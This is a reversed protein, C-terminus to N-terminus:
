SIGNIDKREKEKIRGGDACRRGRSAARKRREKETERRSGCKCEQSTRRGKSRKAEGARAHQKKKERNRDHKASKEEKEAVGVAEVGLFGYTRRGGRKSGKAWTREEEKKVIRSSHEQKRKGRRRTQIVGESKDSLYARKEDKPTASADKQKEARTAQTEEDAWQIKPHRYESM